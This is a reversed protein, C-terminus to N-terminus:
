SRKREMQSLTPAYMIISMACMEPRTAVPSCFDGKWYASTTVEVVCLDSRPGREPIMKKRRPTLALVPSSRTRPTENPKALSDNRRTNIHRSSDSHTHRVPLLAARISTDRVYVPLM